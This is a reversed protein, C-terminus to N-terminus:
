TLRSGKPEVLLPAGQAPLYLLPLRRERGADYLRRLAPVSFADQAQVSAAFGLRGLLDRLDAVPDPGCAAPMAELMQRQTMPWGLQRLLLGLPELKANIDNGAADTSRAPNNVSIDQSRAVGAELSLTM